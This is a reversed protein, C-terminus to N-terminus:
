RWLLDAALHSPRVHRLFVGARPKEAPPEARVLWVSVSLGRGALKDLFQRRAADWDLLVCSVSSLADARQLVNQALISFDAHASAQAGALIELLTVAHALGRGATFCHAEREVFVLDLLADREAEGAALSAAASVAAEFDGSRSLPCFTDLVLARRVFYEDEFEKVLWRGQKASSRWHVTRLSDGPRYERLSLFEQSDGVANALAIGGRQYARGGGAPAPTFPYRKPLVCCTQPLAIDHLTRLLGFPDPRFLRLQQFHLRGRRQPILAVAVAVTQGPPLEPLAQEELSAGRKARMLWRWKYYGVYRDFFNRKAAYPDAAAAFEAWSVGGDGLQDLLSLGQQAQRGQNSLWLSYHLPEGVTAHRPLKREIRINLPKNRSAAMGLLACGFLALLLTFFQYDESSRTDFGFAGALALALLLLRGLFSVRCRFAAGIGHALTFNRFLLRKM